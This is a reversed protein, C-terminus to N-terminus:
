GEAQVSATLTHLVADSPLIAPHGVVHVEAEPAPRKAVRGPKVHQEPSGPLGGRVTDLTTFTRLEIAGCLLWFAATWYRYRKGRGIFETAFHFVAAPVLAAFLHGVKGWFLAADAAQAAYMAAFAGLWGFNTVTVLFFFRASSPSAKVRRSM